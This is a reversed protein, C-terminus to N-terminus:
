DQNQLEEDVSGGFEDLWAYPDANPDPIAPTGYETGALQSILDPSLTGVSLAGGEPTSAVGWGPATSAPPTAPPTAHAGPANRNLIATIAALSANTDAPTSYDPMPVGGGTYRAAGFGQGQGTQAAAMAQNTAAQPVPASGMIARQGAWEAAGPLTPFLTQPTYLPVANLRNVAGTLATEGYRTQDLSTLGLSELLRNTSFTDAVGPASVMPQGSAVGRAAARRTLQDVVDQPVEGSLAAQINGSSLSAMDAYNPVRGTYQGVNFANTQAALNEISPLAATTGAVTPSLIDTYPPLNPVGGSAYTYSGPLSGGGVQAPPNVPNVAGPSPGGFPPNTLGPASTPQTSGPATVPNPNNRANWAAVVQAYNAWPNVDLTPRGAPSGMGYVPM